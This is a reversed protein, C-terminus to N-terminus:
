CHCVIKNLSGDYNHEFSRTMRSILMVSLSDSHETFPDFSSGGYKFELMIDGSQRAYEMSFDLPFAEDPINPLLLNMALEEFVLQVSNIQKRTFAQGQGFEEISSNLELYDFYKSNATYCFSKVRQVFDRTKERRPHDFIQQPTGEEYIVGEEFYMIRTSVDRAFQMMHTVIVMTLGESALKRIVALVEGAMTPDLASTPEDFLMIEPKMALARAIAARQKQGGSLEDPYLLAKEGLGVSCLLRIGEDYAQQPSLGLLHEPALMVNEVATLNPFLNFAQFVMGVKQRIANLNTDPSLIDIGDIYIEGGDPKELGNLCRLFTSKGVGSSGVISVIEGKKIECSIDVLPSSDGFSKKLGRVSIM